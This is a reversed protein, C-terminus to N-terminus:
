SRDATTRSVLTAGLAGGLALFPLPELEGRVLFIAAAAAGAMVFLARIAHDRWDLKVIHAGFFSEQGGSRREAMNEERAACQFTM